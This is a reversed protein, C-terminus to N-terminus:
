QSCEEDYCNHHPCNDYRARVGTQAGASVIELSSIVYCFETKHVSTNKFSDNYSAWGWLFIRSKRESALQIDGWQIAGADVTVSGKPAIVADTNIHPAGPEWLDPYTFSDPLTFDRPFAAHSVHAHFFKTPTTGSNQWSIFINAKPEGDSMKEASFEMVSPFVFARQVTTLADRNIQNSELMATYQGHTICAYVVLALFTLVAVAFSLWAVLLTHGQYRNDGQADARAKHVEVGDHIKITLEPIIQKEEGTRAPHINPPSVHKPQAMTIKIAERISAILSEIALTLKNMQSM